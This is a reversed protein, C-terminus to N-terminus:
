KAAKAATAKPSVWDFLKCALQNRVKQSPCGMLVLIWERGGRRCVATICFGAKRTFGTKLGVVGPCDHVLRSRNVLQFPKGTRQRIWSLWTSSWKVIRPHKLCENAVLVLDRATSMNERRTGPEPLGHPNYFRTHTMGLEVARQNMREVFRNVDGGGLFQAVLFAADNASFIMMCKLLEDLTFTERPDLYVQSGEVRAAEPTVRVPTDLSLAPDKDIAEMLLLATMMKTMSAIPAPRDADKEWLITRDTNDVLIGTRCERTARALEDPLPRIARRYPFLPTGSASPTGAQAPEANTGPVADEPRGAPTRGGGASDRGPRVTLLGLLFFAHIAAVVIIIATRRM